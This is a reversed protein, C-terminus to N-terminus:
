GPPLQQELSERVLSPPHHNEGLLFRPRKVVVVDPGLVDEQTQDVFAFADGGPCEFGEVDRELSNALLDLLHDAPALRGGM